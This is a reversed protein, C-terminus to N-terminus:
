IKTCDKMFDSSFYRLNKGWFDRNPFISQTPNLKCPTLEGIGFKDSDSLIDGLIAVAIDVRNRGNFGNKNYKLRTENDIELINKNCIVSINILMEKLLHDCKLIDTDICITGITDTVTTYIFPVDFIHKNLSVYTLKGKDYYEYEGGLFNDLKDFREDKIQPM